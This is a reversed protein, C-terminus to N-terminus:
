AALRTTGRTVRRVRSTEILRGSRAPTSHCLILPQRDGAISGGYFLLPDDVESYRFLVLDGDEDSMHVGVYTLFGRVLDIRTFGASTRAGGLRNIRDGPVLQSGDGLHLRESWVDPAAKFEFMFCNSCAILKYTPRQYELVIM